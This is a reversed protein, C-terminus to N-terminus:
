YLATSLLWCICPRCDHLMTIFGRHSGVSVRDCVAANSTVNFLPIGFSLELAVRESALKTQVPSLPETHVDKRWRKEMRTKRSEMGADPRHVSMSVVEISLSDKIWNLNSCPLAYFFIAFSISRFM